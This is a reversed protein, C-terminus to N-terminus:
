SPRSTPASMSLTVVSVCFATTAGYAPGGPHSPPQTSRCLGRRTHRPHRHAVLQHRPVAGDSLRAGFARVLDVVVQGNSLQDGITRFEPAGNGIVVSESRKAVVDDM